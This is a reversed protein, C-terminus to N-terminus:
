LTFNVGAGQLETHIIQGKLSPTAVWMDALKMIKTSLFILHKTETESEVGGSWGWRILTSPDSRHSSEKNERRTNQMRKTRKVRASRQLTAEWHGGNIHLKYAPLIGDTLGDTHPSPLLTSCLGRFCRRSGNHKRWHGRWGFPQECLPVGPASSQQLFRDAVYVCMRNRIGSQHNTVILLINCSSEHHIHYNLAGSM